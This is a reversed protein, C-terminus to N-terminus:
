QKVFMKVVSGEVTTIRLLYSGANLKGLQITNDTLETSLILTGGLTYIEARGAKVGDIFLRDAVPNPYIKLSSALVNNTSTGLFIVEEVDAGAVTVEGETTAYGEATAVYPYVGDPLEIMATGDEGTILIEGNIAIEVGSLIGAESSVRFTVTYTEPAIPDLVVTVDEDAGAITVSGGAQMYGEFTVVYAYTGDPLIVSATGDAGTTLSQQGTIEILAGEMPTAEPDTVLFSLTYVPTSTSNLQIALEVNSDQVVAEGNVPFYGEKSVTYAYIGNMMEISATGNAATTLVNGDVDISAGEVPAFTEDYVYFSLMYRPLSMIFNVEGAAEEVTFSGSYDAYGEYVATFAYSGPSLMAFAKGEADTFLTEVVGEITIEVGALPGGLESEAAFWTEFQYAPMFHVRGLTPDDVIHTVVGEISASDQLAVGWKNYMAYQVVSGNNYLDYLVGGNGNNAFQNGGPNFNDPDSNGMNARPYGVITIGWLNGSIVNGTITSYQQSSPNSATLNIGSGGLAPNNQINNDTIVNYRIAGNIPSGTLTIGYRNQDVINSDIVVSGPVALLSSYAIGGSNTYGNGIITNGIIYTTDNEGAPGMNIQPRNSNETVNGFMYNNRIIAKTAVNSGSAVAGRQNLIFDCNTVEGYGSLDVVAASSYSGSTSGSKYYNKYFTSGEVTFIGTQSRIGGGFMFEANRIHTEHGAVLKFGRWKNTSTSDIATFTAKVPADITLYGESEFGTLDHFVVTVDELINLADTPLILITSTVEYHDENWIVAGNSNQVLSDLTWSVGTGPTSYQAQAFLAFLAFLLTISKKM